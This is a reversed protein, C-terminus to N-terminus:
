PQTCWFVVRFKRAGIYAHRPSVICMGYGYTMPPWGRGGSVGLGVGRGDNAGQRDAGVLGQASGPRPAAVATSWARGAAAAATARRGATSLSPSLPYNLDPFAFYKASNSMNRVKQARRGFQPFIEGFSVEAWITSFMERM